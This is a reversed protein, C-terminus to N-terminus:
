EGAERASNHLHADVVELKGGCYPCFAHDNDRPSGDTFQHKNGCATDWSGDWEDQTWACTKSKLAEAIEAHHTRIFLACKKLSDLWYADGGDYLQNEHVVAELAKLLEDM